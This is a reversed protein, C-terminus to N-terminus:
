AEMLHITKVGIMNAHIGVVFYELTGRNTGLVGHSRVGMRCAPWLPNLFVAPMTAFSGARAFHFTLSPEDDSM